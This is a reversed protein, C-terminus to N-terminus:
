NSLIMFADFKAVFILLSMLQSKLFITLVEIMEIGIIENIKTKMCITNIKLPWQGSNFVWQYFKPKMKIKKCFWWEDAGTRELIWM